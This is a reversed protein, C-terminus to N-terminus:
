YLEYTDQKLSILIITQSSQLIHFEQNNHNLEPSKIFLNNNKM